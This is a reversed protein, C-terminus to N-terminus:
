HPEVVQPPTRDVNALFELRAEAGTSSEAQVANTGHSEKSISGVPTSTSATSTTSLNTTDDEDETHCLKRHKHVFYYSPFKSGCTKCPYYQVNMDLPKVERKFANSSGGSGGSNTTSSSSQHSRRRADYVAPRPHGAATHSAHKATSASYAATTSKNDLCLPILHRKAHKQYCYHSKFTHKCYVCTYSANGATDAISEANCAAVDEQSNEDKQEDDQSLVFQPAAVASQLRTQQHQYKQSSSNSSSSSSEYALKGTNSINRAMQQHFSSAYRLSRSARKKANSGNDALSFADEKSTESYDATRNNKNCGYMVNLVRRFRVPGDCSAIDVIVGNTTGDNAVDPQHVKQRKAFTKPHNNKSRNECDLTAPVDSTRDHTKGLTDEPKSINENCKRDDNIDKTDSELLPSSQPSLPAISEEEYRTVSIPSQSPSHAEHQPEAEEPHESSIDHVTDGLSRFSASPLLNIQSATPPAIFSLGVTAMAKSAIPRVLRSTSNAAAFASSVAAEPKTNFYARQQLSSDGSISTCTSANTANSSSSLYTRCLELARPMHLLHTALLVGFINDMTLDLYGTYMYSLLPTFQEPTVNPLYLLSTANPTAPLSCIEATTGVGSHHQLVRRLPGAPNNQHQDLTRIAARLYGSHTALLAAHAAYRTSCPHPGVELIVDPANPNAWTGFM